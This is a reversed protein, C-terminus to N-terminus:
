MTSANTGPPSRRTTVATRHRTSISRSATPCRTTSRTSRLRRVPSTSSAPRSTSRANSGSPSTTTTSTASSTTASTTTALAATNTTDSTTTGETTTTAASTNNAFEKLVTKGERVCWMDGGANMLEAVIGNQFNEEAQQMGEPEIYDRGVASYNGATYFCNQLQTESMDGLRGVLMGASDESAADTKAVTGIHYCNQLPADSRGALGGVTGKATVTGIHYANQVVAGAQFQGALGGAFDRSATIDGECFSDTITGSCLAAIGGVTNKGQIHVNTLGLKQVTGSLKAFMGLNSGGSCQLNSICHYNGDFTGAYSGIPTWTEGELSIDATLMACINPDAAAKEAFELLEAATSLLYPNDAKGTGELELAAARSSSFVAGTCATLLLVLATLISYAKKQFATKM